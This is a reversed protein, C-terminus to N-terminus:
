EEKKDSQNLEHIKGLIAYLSIKKEEKPSLLVYGKKYLMSFFDIGLRDDKPILKELVEELKM